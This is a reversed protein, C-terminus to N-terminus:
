YMCEAWTDGHGNSKVGLILCLNLSNLPPFYFSYIKSPSNTKGRPTLCFNESYKGLGNENGIINLFHLSLLQGDLKTLCRGFM